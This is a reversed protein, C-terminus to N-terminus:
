RTARPPRRCTPVSTGTRIATSYRYAHKAETEFFALWEDYIEQVLSQPLPHNVIVAFGTTRLSRTFSKPADAAQFDVVEVNM